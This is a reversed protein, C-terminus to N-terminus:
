PKAGTLFPRRLQDLLADADRVHAKHYTWWPDEREEEYPPLAFVEKMAHLATPRDGYARALLGLALKPSQARPYLAAAREFHERAAERHGLGAEERGAFLEAYYVLQKDGLQPLSQRLESLAEKHRGLLGLVRGRRLRAEAFAPDAALAGRYFEEARELETEVSEVDSRVDARSELARSAAQALPGAFTEHLAGAYFLLRADNVLLRLAARLHPLAYAFQEERLLHAATARYWARVMEDRAPAASTSDLVARGIDWHLTGHELGVALGDDTQVLIHAAPGRRRRRPDPQLSSPSVPTRELPVLMAIDAHLLAARKLLQDWNDRKAVNQALGRIRNMVAQPFRRGPVPMSRRRPNIGHAEDLADLFIVLDVAFERLGTQLWAGISRAPADATGPEHREVAELWTTLRTLSDAPPPQVAAALVLIATPWVVM